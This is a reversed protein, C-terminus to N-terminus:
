ILEQLQNKVVVSRDTKGQNSSILAAAATVSSKSDDPTEESSALYSLAGIYKGNQCTVSGARALVRRFLEIRFRKNEVLGGRTWFYMRGSEAFERLLEFGIEIRPTFSRQKMLTELDVSTQLPLGKLFNLIRTTVFLTYIEDRCFSETEIAMATLRARVYDTETLELGRAIPADPTRYFPSAGLLVPLQANFALTQIMSDLSENPLGLIQYSVVKFGLAHARRVIKLYAELTHPRKTTERVTKDSSVLALNLHSFGAHYMLELLEDDLSLYSIGNMAVLEMERDPFRAILRRCLEKFTMKYYTLNDDEFDIVRYGQRYRLEIEELVNELSRRRYNTGFTTHVSCFSCKHPCSRSTIMFTMPKGAFQYTSPATDSLDPFPLEDLPFNEGMPNSCHVGNRKYSLNPVSAIDNEGRLYRLLEVLPKEGEGRIVYDVSPSALMSEPVASAHSGGVVVPMRLHKKVRAAIELVERYYPTFLSSIGVLDPKLPAIEQEIAEFSKGFHYYGDFTSFPSKDAISYYDKLYVLEKPVAVTRRGWGAHYDKIIVDVEPLHKNVASKLYALGIPQLRVDTDYFDQVPPQILLLKM